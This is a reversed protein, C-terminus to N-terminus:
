CFFATYRIPDDKLIITSSWMTYKLCFPFQLQAIFNKRVWVRRVNRQRVIM